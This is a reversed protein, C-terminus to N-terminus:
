LGVVESPAETERIEEELLQLSKELWELEDELNTVEDQLEPIRTELTELSVGPVGSAETGQSGDVPQSQRQLGRSAVSGATSFGERSPGAGLLNMDWDTLGEATSGFSRGPLSSRSASSPGDENSQHKTEDLLDAPSAKVISFIEMEEVAQKEAAAAKTSAEHAEKEEKENSAIKQLAAADSKEAATAAVTAVAASIDSHAKSIARIIEEINAKDNIVLKTAATLSKRLKREERTSQKADARFDTAVSGTRVEPLWFMLCGRVGKVEEQAMAKPHLIKLRDRRSQLCTKMAQDFLNVLFSPHFDKAVRIYWKITEHFTNMLFRKEKTSFDSVDIRQGVSNWKLRHMSPGVTLLFRELLNMSNPMAQAKLILMHLIGVILMSYVSTVIFIVFCIAGLVQLLQLVQAVNFVSGVNLSVDLAVIECSYWIAVTFLFSNDIFYLVYLNRNDFPRINVNFQFYCYFIFMLYYVRTAAIPLYLNSHFALKWLMCAAEGAYFGPRYGEYLSGYVFAVTPDHLKHRLSRLKLLIAIPMGLGFVLISFFSAIAYKMHQSSLLVLEPYIRARYTDYIVGGFCDVMSQVSIGYLLQIWVFAWRNNNSSFETIFQKFGKSNQPQGKSDHTFNIVTRVFNVIFNILLVLPILLVGCVFNAQPVQSPSNTFCELTLVSMFPFNIKHAFNLIWSINRRLQGSRIAIALVQMYTFIRKLATAFHNGAQAQMYFGAIFLAIFYVLTQLLLLPVPPCRECDGLEPTVYNTSGQLCNRCLGGATSGACVNGALCLKPIPCAVYNVSNPDEGVLAYYGPLSPPLAPAKETGYRCNAGVPCQKCSTGPLPAFTGDACNICAVDDASRSQGAPCPVCTSRDSGLEYSQPCPYITAQKGDWTIGVTKPDIKSLDEIGNIQSINWKSRWRDLPPYSKDAPLVQAVSAYRNKIQGSTTFELPGYISQESINWLANRLAIHKADETKNFVGLKLARQELGALLAMGAAVARVALEPPPDSDGRLRQVAELFTATNGFLRCPHTDRFTWTVPANMYLAKDIGVMNVYSPDTGHVALIAKPNLGVVATFAVFDTLSQIKTCIIIIDPPDSRLTQMALLQALQNDLEEATKVNIGLSVATTNAGLCIEKEPLDNTYMIALSSAGGAKIVELGRQMYVTTQRAVSFIFDSSSYEFGFSNLRDPWTGLAYHMITRNHDSAVKSAVLALDFSQPGIFIDAERNIIWNTYKERVLDESGTDDHILLELKITEGSELKYKGHSNVRDRFVTLCSQIYEAKQPDELNDNSTITLTGALVIKVDRACTVASSIIVWFAYIPVKM